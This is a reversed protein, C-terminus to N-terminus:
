HGYPVIFIDKWGNNNFEKLIVNALEFRRYSGMKIEENLIIMFQDIPIASLKENYLDMSRKISGEYVSVETYDFGINFLDASDKPLELYNGKINNLLKWEIFDPIKIKGQTFKILRYLPGMGINCLDIRAIESFHPPNEMEGIILKVEYPM